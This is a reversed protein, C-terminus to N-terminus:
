GIRSIVIKILHKGEIQWQMPGLLYAEYDSKQFDM